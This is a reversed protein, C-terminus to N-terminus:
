ALASEFRKTGAPRLGFEEGTDMIAHVMDKAYGRSCAVLFAGDLGNRKLVVVQSPVHSFPGQVLFPAEKQPDGLDMSTLKEAIGFVGRGVVATMMYGETVETFAAEQPSAAAEGWLQYISAGTRGTRSVVFGGQLVSEGPVEPIRIGFPTFAGIQADQLIWKLRHSLDTVFPAEEHEKEYQLVVQWAGRIETELPRAPFVVPSIRRITKM